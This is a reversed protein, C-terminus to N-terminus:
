IKRKLRQRRSKNNSELRSKDFHKLLVKNPIMRQLAVQEKISLMNKNLLWLQYDIPLSEFRVGKYKGFKMVFSEM